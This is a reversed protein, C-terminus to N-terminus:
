ELTKLFAVLASLEAQDFVQDYGSPMTSESLTLIALGDGQSAISSTGIRMVNGSGDEARTAVVLESQTSALLTGRVTSGNQLTVQVPVYRADITASPDVIGEMLQSTSQSGVGWLGPGLLRFSDEAPLVSHCQDCAGKGFFLEKGRRVEDERRVFQETTTERMQDPNLSLAEIEDGNVTGGQRALFAVIGRIQQISLIAAFGGPMQAQAGPAIYAEPDVISEFLYATASLGDRRSGATAGIDSLDPGIAGGPISATNHCASCYTTYVAAGDAYGGGFGSGAPASVLASTGFVVALVLGVTGVAVVPPVVWRRVRSTKSQPSPTSDVPAISAM